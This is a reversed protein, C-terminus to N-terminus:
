KNLIFKCTSISEKQKIQLIYIGNALDTLDIEAHQNGRSFINRNYRTTSNSLINTIFIQSDNPSSALFDIQLSGNSPNPYIVFPEKALQSSEDKTKTINSLAQKYVGLDTAAYITDSLVLLDKVLFPLTANGLRLGVNNSTFTLGYDDSSYVGGYTTGYFVQNGAIAISYVDGNLNTGPSQHWLKGNDTSRFIGVDDTGAFVFSDNAEISLVAELHAGNRVFGNNILEWSNGNLSSVFAVGTDPMTTNIGATGAFLYKSNSALSFTKLDDMGKNNHLVSWTVATDYSVYVGGGYSAAYIVKGVSIIDQLVKRGIGSNLVDWHSGNLTTRLIGGGRQGVILFTDLSCMSWSQSNKLVPDLPLEQWSNGGDKSKYIGAKETGAFLVSGIKALSLIGTDAPLGTSCRIWEKQANSFSIFLFLISITLQYKNM